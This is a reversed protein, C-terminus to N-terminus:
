SVSAIVEDSSSSPGSSTAAQSNKNKAQRYDLFEEMLACEINPEDAIEPDDFEPFLKPKRLLRHDLKPAGVRERLAIIIMMMMKLSIGNITTKSSTARM